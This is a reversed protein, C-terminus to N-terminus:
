ANGEALDRSFAAIEQNLSEVYAVDLDTPEHDADLGGTMLGFMTAAGAYFARRTEVRQVESANPPLINRAFQDWEQALSCRERLPIAGSRLPKTSM